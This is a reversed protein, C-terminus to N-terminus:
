FGFGARPHWQTMNSSRDILLWYDADDVAQRMQYELGVKMRSDREEATDVVGACGGMFSGVALVVLLFLKKM